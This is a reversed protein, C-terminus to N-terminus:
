TCCICICILSLTFTWARTDVVGVHHPLQSTVRGRTEDRWFIPRAKRIFWELCRWLFVTKESGAGCVLSCYRVMDGGCYLRVTRMEPLPEFRCARMSAQAEEASGFVRMVCTIDFYADRKPVRLELAIRQSRCM